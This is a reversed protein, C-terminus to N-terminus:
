SGVALRGARWPLEDDPAIRELEELRRAQRAELTLTMLPQPSRVFQVPTMGFYQSFDRNLHSQDYYRLALEEAENEDAVGRLSAAMDMARARRLVAKPTMGFDRRITREVKRTSCGHQAAFETLSLNPDAFTARDFAQTLADPEKAGRQMILRRMCEEIIDLWEGADSVGDFLGLLDESPGVIDEYPIIRDLTTALDPGELMRCAGPKLAIGVTAFSGRVSIPMRKTQPGFFLASRKYFGPGDATEAHWNGSFLLRIICTDAFLGCAVQMDDPMTVNTAYLRAVWPALDPAPGRNVSLPQGDRTAGLASNIRSLGQEVGDM